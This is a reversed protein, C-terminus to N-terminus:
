IKPILLRGTKVLRGFVTCTNSPVTIPDSTHCIDTYSPSPSVIVNVVANAGATAHAPRNLTLAAPVHISYYYILCTIFFLLTCHYFCFHLM